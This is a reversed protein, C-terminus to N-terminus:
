LDQWNNTDVCNEAPRRIIFEIAWGWDGDNLATTIPSLRADSYSFIFFFADQTSGNESDQRLRNVLELAITGTDELAQKQEDFNAQAGVNQLILIRSNYSLQLEDAEQMQLEPDELWLVPFSLDSRERSLIREDPGVVFDQLDTHQDALNSFYDIYDQYM